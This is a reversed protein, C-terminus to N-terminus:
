LIKILDEDLLRPIFNRVDVECRSKEVEFKSVLERIIESVTKKNDILSWIASSAENFEIYNGTKASLLVSLGEIETELVHETKSLIVNLPIQAGMYGRPM